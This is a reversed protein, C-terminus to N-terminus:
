SFGNQYRKHIYSLCDRVQNQINPNAGHKLLMDVVEVHGRDSALMLSSWGHQVYVCTLLSM